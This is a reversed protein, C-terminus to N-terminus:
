ILYRQAKMMIQTSEHEAISPGLPSIISIAMLSTFDPAGIETDM